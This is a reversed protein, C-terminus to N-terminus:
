PKLRVLSGRLSGHSKQELGRSAMPCWEWEISRMNSWGFASKRAMDTLVSSQFNLHLKLRGQWRIEGSGGVGDAGVSILRGAVASQLAMVSAM